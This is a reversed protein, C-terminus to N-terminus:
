LKSYNSGLLVIIKLKEGALVTEMDDFDQDPWNYMDKASTGPRNRRIRPTSAEVSSM